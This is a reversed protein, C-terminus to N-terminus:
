TADHTNERRGRFVVIVVSCNWELSVLSDPGCRVWSGMSAWAGHRERHEMAGARGIFFSDSSGSGLSEAIPFDVVKGLPVPKM